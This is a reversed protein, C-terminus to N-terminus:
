SLGLAICWDMFNERAITPSWPTLYMRADPDAHFDSALDDTERLCERLWNRGSGKGVVIAELGRAALDYRDYGETLLDLEPLSFRRSITELARDEIERFKPLEMKIPQPIDGLYAEAADHLLVHALHEYGDREAIKTALCCHQAVSFWRGRIQGGWRCINSLGDAIDNLDIDHIELALPNVMLGSATEMMCM